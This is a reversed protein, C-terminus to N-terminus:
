VGLENVVMIKKAEFLSFLFKDMMNRREFFEEETLVTYRIEFGTEKEYENILNQLTRDKTDGVILLDSQIDAEGTFQGTLLLLRVRGAKQKIRNVFAQEGLIQAKMLLAQMEPYLLSGRDLRYYKRLGAGAIKSDENSSGTMKGETILGIEKLVALERRVANIQVGLGRALERVFFARDPSRFFFRLLRFRTKSGFLHEVM